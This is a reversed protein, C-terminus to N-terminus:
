QRADHCKAAYLRQRLAVEHAQFGPKTRWFGGHYGFVTQSVRILREQDDVDVSNVERKAYTSKLFLNIACQGDHIFMCARNQQRTIEIGPVRSLGLDEVSHGFAESEFHQIVFLVVALPGEPLGQIVDVDAAQLHNCCCRTNCFRGVM